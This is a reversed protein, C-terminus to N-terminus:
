VREVTRQSAVSQGGSQKSIRSLIDDKDGNKEEASKIKEEEIRKIQNNKWDEQEKLKEVKAKLEVLISKVDNDSVYDKM